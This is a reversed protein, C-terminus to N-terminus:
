LFFELEELDNLLRQRVETNFLITEVDNYQDLDMQVVEQVIEDKEVIEWASQQLSEDQTEQNIQDWDLEIVEDVHEVAKSADKLLQMKVVEPFREYVAYKHTEAMTSEIAGKEQYAKYNELTTDGHKSLYQLTTLESEMDSQCM